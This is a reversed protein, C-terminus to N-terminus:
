EEVKMLNDFDKLISEGREIFDNKTYRAAYHPFDYIISEKFVVKLEKKVMEDFKGMLVFVPDKTIGIVTRLEYALGEVNRKIFDYDIKEKFKVMNKSPIGYADWNDDGVPFKYLDTLYGGEFYTNKFVPYLAKKAYNGGYQNNMYNLKKMYEHVLEDNGNEVLEEIEPTTGFNKGLFVVDCHLKEGLKKTLFEEESEAIIETAGTKSNHENSWYAFSAVHSYKEKLRKYQEWSLYDHKM